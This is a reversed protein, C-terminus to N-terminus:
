KRVLGNYKDKALPCCRKALDAGASMYLPNMWQKLDYELILPEPKSMKDGTRQNDRAEWGHDKSTIVVKLDEIFTNRGQAQGNPSVSKLWAKYLDYLFGYPLLDWACYLIMEEVFQRVPDNFIRYADLSETCAKPESLTYYSTNLVKFMVYELVEQRKLYDDKIYKRESGTFSKKFPVMLQRRYFSETQDKFRPLSNLCQVMFGKFTYSVPTKFKRNIQIVDGTIIAKVNAAKDIFGGVNNEDVIIASCRILPELAFDKSMDELSISTCTGDGCLNRMLSCLTGKGNNGSNSYFWASKNWSVNPRIIAGLIQWILDTLEPDDFLDIMWSEVDWDTDDEDNHIVVNKANPNYNVRSKAIFIKNRDFPLLKKTDYDFIGNNVAILNKESCRRKRPAREKLIDIVNTIEGKTASFLFSRILQRLAVEDTVYIGEDAGSSQYLALLDYDQDGAEDTFCIDIISYLKLLIMAVQEPLLRDPIKWKEGKPRMANQLQFDGAIQTLLEEQIAAPSPPNLVNTQSLYNETIERIVEDRTHAAM